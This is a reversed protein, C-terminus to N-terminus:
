TKKKIFSLEVKMTQGNEIEALKELWCEIEEGKPNKITIFGYEKGGILGRHCNIIYKVQEPQLMAQITIREPSFIADRDAFDNLVIDGSSLYTKRDVDYRVCSEGSLRTISFDKNQIASKCLIKENGQKYKLGGNIWLSHNLLNYKPNIRLNYSTGSDILGSTTFLDDKETQSGSSVITIDCTVPYEVITSEATHIVYTQLSEIWSIELITFIGNNSTTGSINIVSGAVLQDGYDTLFTRLPDIPVETLVLEEGVLTEETSFEYPKRFNCEIDNLTTTTGSKVCVFFNDDDYDTSQKSDTLIPKRRQNEIIYGSAIYRSRIDYTNQYYKIPTKYSHETNFEDLGYTDEKPFKTYGAIIDSYILDQAVDESYTDMNLEEDLAMIEVDQYFYEIPEIRLVQNVGSYEYGFGVGDVAHLSKMLDAISTTMTPIDPSTTIESIYRLLLGSTIMKNKGCTSDYYNSLVSLEKNSLSNVIFDLSDKVDFGYGYTSGSSTLATIDFSTSINKLYYKVGKYNSNSTYTDIEAYITIPKLSSVYHTGTYTFTKTINLTNLEVDRVEVTDLLVMETGIMMWFNLDYDTFKPNTFINKQLIDLQLQFSWTLDFTFNGAYSPKFNWLNQKPPELEDFRMAYKSTETITSIEPNLTSPIFFFRRTTTELDTWDITTVTNNNILFREQTSKSHYGIPTIAPEDGVLSLGDITATDNFNVKTEWRSQLVTESGKREVGVEIVNQSWKWKNFDLRGEFQIADETDYEVMERIIVYADQGYLEYQSELIDKGEGEHIKIVTNEAGEFVFGHWNLDRKFTKDLGVWGDPKPIEVSTENYILYYKRNIDALQFQPTISGSELLELNM